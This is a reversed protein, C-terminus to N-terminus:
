RNKHENIILVIMYVLTLVDAVISAILGWTPLQMWGFHQFLLNLITFGGPFLFAVLFVIPFALLWWTSLSLGFYHKLFAFYAIGFAADSSLPSLTSDNGWISTGYFGVLLADALVPLWTFECVGFLSLIWWVLMVM